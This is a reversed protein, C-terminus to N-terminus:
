PAEGRLLAFIENVSESELAQGLEVVSRKLEEYSTARVQVTLVGGELSPPVTMRIRPGLKLKRIKRQIEDEIRSLRPFRLRRLEEKVRKLKDNRGLRPDSLTNVFSEGKLVECLGVGDRLAIEELWDLFDRFHNEGLKLTQALEFLAQQDADSLQLWRELTRKHLGKERAYDLITQDLM